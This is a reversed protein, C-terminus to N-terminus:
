AEVCKPENMVSFIIKSEGNVMRPTGWVITDDTIPELGDVNANIYGANALRDSEYTNRGPLDVTNADELGDWATTSNDHQLRLVYEWRADATEESSGYVRYWNGDGRGGGGKSSITVRRGYRSLTLGSGEAVQIDTICRGLEENFQQASIPQGERFIQGYNAGFRGYM